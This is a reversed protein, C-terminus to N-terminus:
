FPVEMGEFYDSDTGHDIPKIGTIAQARAKFVESSQNAEFRDGAAWKLIGLAKKHKSAEEYTMDECEPCNNRANTVMKAWGRFDNKVKSHHWETSSVVQGEFLKIAHSVLEEGSPEKQNMVANAVEDASAFETGAYGAAALARGIASTEANELASTKNIRSATRYEESHGTGVIIGNPSLLRAKLVVKEEDNSIIETDIGWGDDITYKKRLENVRYAVTRYEKGHIDVIGETKQKRAM